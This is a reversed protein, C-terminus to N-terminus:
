WFKRDQEEERDQSKSRFSDCTEFFLMREANLPSSQWNEVIRKTRRRAWEETEGGSKIKEYYCWWVYPRYIKFSKALHTRILSWNEKEDTEGEGFDRPKRGM